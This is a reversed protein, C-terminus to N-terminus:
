WLHSYGWPSCLSEFSFCACQMSIKTPSKKMNIWWKWYWRVCRYKKAVSFKKKKWFQHSVHYFGRSLFTHSNVHFATFFLMKVQCRRKIHGKEDFFFTSLLHISPASEQIYSHRRLIIRHITRTGQCQPCYRQIAWLALAFIIKTANRMIDLLGGTGIRWEKQLNLFYMNLKGRRM